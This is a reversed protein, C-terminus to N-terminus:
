AAPRGLQASVLLDVTAELIHRGPPHGAAHDGEFLGCDTFSAALRILDSGSVYGVSLSAAAIHVWLEPWTQEPELM